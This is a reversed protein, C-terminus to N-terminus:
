EIGYFFSDLLSILSIVYLSTPLLLRIFDDDREGSASILIRIQVKGCYEQPIQAM